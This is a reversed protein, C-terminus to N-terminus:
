PDDKATPPIANDEDDDDDDDDEDDDDEWKKRAALVAAETAEGVKTATAAIFANARAYDLAVLLEEDPLTPYEDRIAACLKILRERCELGVLWAKRQEMPPRKKRSKADTM